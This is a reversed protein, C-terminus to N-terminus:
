INELLGKILLWFNGVSSIKLKEDPSHANYIDPGFSIMDMGPYKQGILGCELGAHIAKIEPPRGFLEEHVSVTKALLPSDTDPTWAPYPDRSIFEYDALLCHSIVRSSVDEVQSALSSRQSSLISIGEEQIKVSALNTSTRVLGPIEADMAFIGHPFSYLMNLLASKDKEQLVRNFGNVKEAGIFVGSDTKSLEEKYIEDYKIMETEFLPLDEEKFDILAYSERPIANHKDGGSLDSLDFNMKDNLHWLFRALLIVANGRGKCIDLGSHGGKLGGLHIRYSIDKDNKKRSVISRYLGTTKGGACGIYVAGEEESDLNILIRGQLFDSDLANAGTLGTEEDVTFLCELAGHSIDNSDLVAMAAAVGIGNDAGLTTGRALVFGDEEYIDLPENLFDHDTDENKECVMDLHAQLVVGPRGATQSTSPKRVILNGVGDKEYSFGREEAFNIIYSVAREEHKSPRPIRSLEFFFKWVESPQLKDLM